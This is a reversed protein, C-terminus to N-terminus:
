EKKPYTVAGGSTYTNSGGNSVVQGSSSSGTDPALGEAYAGTQGVGFAGGYEGANSSAGGSICDGCNSGYVDSESGVGGYTQTYEATAAVATGALASADAATQEAAYHGNSANGQSYIGGSSADTEVDKTLKPPAPASLVSSLAVFLSVFALINHSSAM